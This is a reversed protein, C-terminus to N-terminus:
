EKVFEYEIRQIRGRWYPKPGEPLLWSVEGEIPVMMGDRCEYDWFRGEWPTAVYQGNVERCRGDSHVTSILGQENFSVLLTVESSGDTLTASAQMEDVAEWRLGQSPLFATPYWTAEALFRMLEGQALEPTGSQEMVTILGMIKAVLAGEGAVYADRVFVGVGPTMRLRAGWVFGPRRTIVYQSSEFPVWKEGMNFTGLHKINVAKIIPQGAKLITRFYREVPAPLGAIEEAQFARIRPHSYEAQISDKLENVSVEWRFRGFLLICAVAAIMLLAFLGLSFWM